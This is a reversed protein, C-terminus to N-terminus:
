TGILRTNVRVASIKGDHCVLAVQWRKIVIPTIQNDSDSRDCYLFDTAKLDQFGSNTIMSCKFQHQEMIRQADSLATGVPVWSQIQSAAQAPQESLKDSHACGGVALIIALTLIKM